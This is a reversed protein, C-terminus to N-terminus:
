RSFLELTDAQFLAYTIFSDRVPVSISQGRIEMELHGKALAKRIEEVTFRYTGEIAESEDRDSIGESCVFGAYVPVVSSLIGSDPAMTGLLVQSELGMGTEEKLEREAAAEIEEGKMRTGRPLELEWSRTAHRFNLNLVIRGDPLIPLVAVGAFGDFESRWVIRDYTGLAGGPFRVADRLWVLYQDEAIVGVRSAEQAFDESWGKKVLRRSQLDQTEEISERELLLEIEGKAADGVFFLRPQLNLLEFYLAILLFANMPLCKAVM